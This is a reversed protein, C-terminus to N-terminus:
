RCEPSAGLAKSTAPRIARPMSAPKGAHTWTHQPDYRGSGSRAGKIHCVKGVVTEADILTATCKPFACRNGSHAFLRKITPLTPGTPDRRIAM